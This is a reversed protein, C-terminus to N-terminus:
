ILPFEEQVQVPRREAISRKLAAEVQLERLGDIGPVPPTSGNRLSDLYAHLSKEFSGRYQDWRSNHRALAHIEHSQTAGDLVELDGDLDRMHIRGNEFTLILEYLPHQWKMGSTGILTGTAGNEMRFAATVDQAEISVEAGKRTATGALATIEAMSGAFHHILDICHSWCAYHVQGVANIVEGFNRTAAIRKAAMSQDFFRYNFVMATECGRERALDLMEKGKYFDDETVHAQGQAAVLPKEFFIRPVGLNILEMGVEYRGTESTLVLTTDPDWATLDALSAFVEGDFQEAIEQAKSHTRNYYGLVVDPQSALYPIYNKSAVGGIGVVAIKM